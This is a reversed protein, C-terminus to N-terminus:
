VEKIRIGQTYLMLKRKIVYEKTKTAESKVDEVITRNTKNDVYVFDAKYVVPREVMRGDRVQKPILVYSAQRELFSIEGARELLKLESWRNAEKASDFAIGDVITKKNGYKSM